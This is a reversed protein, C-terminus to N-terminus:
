GGKQRRQREARTGAYTHATYMEALTEDTHVRADQRRAFWATVRQRLCLVELVIWLIFLFFILTGLIADTRTYM